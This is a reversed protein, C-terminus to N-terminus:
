LWPAPTDSAPPSTVSPATVPANDPARSSAAQASQSPPAAKTEASPPLLRLTHEQPRNLWADSQRQVEENAVRATLQELDSSTPLQLTAGALLVNMNGGFARPNSRYVALMMRNISVDEPRARDAISWLTEARRVPGYTGGPASTPLARPPPRSPKPQEESRPAPAPETRPPTPAPQQTPKAREPPSESAPAPRPEATDRCTVPRFPRSNRNANLGRWM